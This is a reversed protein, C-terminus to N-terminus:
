RVFRDAGFRHHRELLEEIPVLALGMPALGSGATALVATMVAADACRGEGEPREAHDVAIDTGTRQVGQLLGESLLGVHQRHVADVHEPDAREGEPRQDDDDRHLVQHEHHPRVVPALAADEGQSREDHGATTAVHLLGANEHREAYEARGQEVAVADDCRRDRHEARDLTKLHHGRRERGPDDRDRDHDDHPEEEDLAPSRTGDPLHESWHHDDPEGRNCQETDGLDDVRRLDELRDVGVVRHLEEGVLGALCEEREARDEENDRATLREVCVHTM